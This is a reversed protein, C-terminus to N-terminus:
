ADARLANSDRSPIKAIFLMLAVGLITLGIKLWLPGVLFISISFAIFMLIIVRKKVQRPMARHEEWETIIPGFVKHNKLAFYFRKSSRAFCAAALLMFPTTPLVPLFIGIIGLTVFLMGASAFILRVTQSRHLQM